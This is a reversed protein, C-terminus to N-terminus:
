ESPNKRRQMLARLLVDDPASYWAYKRRLDDCFRIAERPHLLLDDFSWADRYITNFEDSLRDKLDALELDIGYDRPNISRAMLWERYFAAQSTVAVAAM